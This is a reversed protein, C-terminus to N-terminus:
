RHYGSCGKFPHQLLPHGVFQVRAQGSASLSCLKLRDTIYTPVTLRSAPSITRKWPDELIWHLISLATPRLRHRSVQGMGPALWLSIRRPHM